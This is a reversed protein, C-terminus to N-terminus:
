LEESPSLLPTQKLPAVVSLNQQLSILFLQLFFVCIDKLTEDSKRNKKNIRSESSATQSIELNDLHNKNTQISDSWFIKQQKKKL